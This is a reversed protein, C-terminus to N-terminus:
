RKGVGAYRRRRASRMVRTATGRRQDVLDRMLYAEREFEDEAASNGPSSRAISQGGSSSECVMSSAQATTSDDPELARATAAPGIDLQAEDDDASSTGSSVACEVSSGPAALSKSVDLARAAATRAEISEMSGEDVGSANM